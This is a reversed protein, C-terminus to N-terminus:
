RAHDAQVGARVGDLGIVVLPPAYKALMKMAPTITVVDHRKGDARDGRPVHQLHARQHREATQGARLGARRAQVRQPLGAAAVDARQGVGHRVRDAVDQERDPPRDHHGDHVRHSSVPGLWSPVM